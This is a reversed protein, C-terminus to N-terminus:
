RHNKEVYAVLNKALNVYGTKNIQRSITTGTPKPATEFSIKPIDKKPTIIAKAFYYAWKSNIGLKYEKEVTQKCTKSKSIITTYKQSAM